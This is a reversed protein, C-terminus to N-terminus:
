APSLGRPAKISRLARWARAAFLGSLAGWALAAASAFGADDAWDRHFVLTVAVAYRLAFILWMALLPWPSGALRVSGDPQPWMQRPWRLARNAAWALAAGLVWAPLARPGFAQMGSWLSYGGLALPAVLARAWTMRHAVCQRLGLLTIAALIAWVWPPTHAVIESIVVSLPLNPPMAPQSWPKRKPTM